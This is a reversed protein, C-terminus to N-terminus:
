FNITASVLCMKIEISTNDAQLRGRALHRPLFEKADHVDGECVLLFLEVLLESPQEVIFLIKKWDNRRLIM